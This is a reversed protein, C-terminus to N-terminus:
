NRAPFIGQMAICWNVTLYPQINTHAQNGGFPSVTAPNLPTVTPSTAPAYYNDGPSTGSKNSQAHASGTNPQKFNANSSTGSFAHNHAPMENINLTITEEGAEEGQFYTPGGPPTGYHMPVRSQLNPLAFTTIGNGGYMTGLLSFLATNQAISLIQGNCLAWSRPAFGFGFPQIQGLFPQTM